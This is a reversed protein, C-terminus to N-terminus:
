KREDEDKPKPLARAAAKLAGGLGGLGFAEKGDSLLDLRLKCTEVFRLFERRVEQELSAKLEEAQKVFNPPSQNM